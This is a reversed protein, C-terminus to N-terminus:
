RRPRDIERRFPPLAGLIGRGYSKEILRRDLICIRGADTTTRILRGCYQTLIRIADPIAIEKFPNRGCKEYWEALTAGIPDTPVAFPLQTIVVTTALDGKLDVGEGFSALGFLVSGRGSGIAKAHMELMRHKSMSGQALVQNQLSEPLLGLTAALKRKSTFLVLSGKSWDLEKMLWDAIARCHGDHDQPAAQMWPVQLVAQRELDFPSALKLIDASEPLGISDAFATFDDGSGMTASTLLASEVKSWVASELIPGADVPAAHLVLAGQDTLTLWKAVPASNRHAGKGWLAFLLSDGSLHEHAIGLEKLMREKAGDGIASERVDNKMRTVAKLLGGVQTSLASATLTWAEPLVGGPARWLPERESHDPTWEMAIVSKFQEVAGAVEAILDPTLAHDASSAKVGRLARACAGVLKNLKTLRVAMSDVAVVASAADIAYSPLQHAEDFVFLNTEPEAIIKGAQGDEDGLLLDALLLAHNVVVIDAEKIDKRSTLAPCSGAFPCRSGSCGGSSTTVLRKLEGPIEELGDLDGNWKGSSFSEAMAEVRAVQEPSPAFPWGAASVEADEFLEGEQPAPSRLDVLNRVCLFRQRGKGLAVKATTNTSKLYLPIDKAVLQEQLAVTGTSIVLKKGAELAIPIGATLYSLSKGTGTGAEVVSLGGTTGLARASAGIMQLQARRPEFGPTAARLRDYAEKVLAKGKEDLVRVVPAEKGEAAM